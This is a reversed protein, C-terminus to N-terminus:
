REPHVHNASHNSDALNCKRQALIYNLGEETLYWKTNMDWESADPPEQRALGKTILARSTRKPTWWPLQNQEMRAATEMVDIQTESIKM